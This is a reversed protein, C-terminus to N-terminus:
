DPAREVNERFSPADLRCRVSSDGVGRLAAGHAVLTPHPGGSRGGGSDDEPAPSKVSRGPPDAGADRDYARAGASGGSDTGAGQQPAGPGPPVVRSRLARTADFYSIARGSASLEPLSHLRGWRRRPGMSGGTGCRTHRSAGLVTSASHRSGGGRYGQGNPEPRDADAAPLTRIGDRGSAKGVGEGPRVHKAVWWDFISWGPHRHVAAASEVDSVGGVVPHKFWRRPLCGVLRTMDLDRVGDFFRAFM